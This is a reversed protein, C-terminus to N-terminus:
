KGPDPSTPAEEPAVFAMPDRETVLRWGPEVGVVDAVAQVYNAFNTRSKHAAELLKSIQAAANKPVEISDPKTQQKKTTGM